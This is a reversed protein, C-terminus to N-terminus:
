FEWGAVLNPIMTLVTGFVLLLPGIAAVVAGFGVILRQTGEDLNNFWTLCDTLREVLDRIHPILINGITIGAGEFASKFNDIAGKLNDQMTEYMEDATGKSNRLEEEFSAISGSGEQMAINVGKM